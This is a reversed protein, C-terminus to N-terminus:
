SKYISFTIEYFDAKCQFSNLVLYCIEYHISYLYFMTLTIFLYYNRFDFLHCYYKMNQDKFQLWMKIFPDMCDRHYSFFVKNYLSSMQTEYGWFWAGTGFNLSARNQDKIEGRCYTRIWPPFTLRHYFTLKDLNEPGPAQHKVRGRGRGTMKMGWDKWTDRLKGWVNTSSGLRTPWNRFPLRPHKAEPSM